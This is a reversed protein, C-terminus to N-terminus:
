ANSEAGGGGRVWRIPSAGVGADVGGRSDDIGSHVGPKPRSQWLGRCRHHSVAGVNPALAARAVGPLPTLTTALARGFFPRNV